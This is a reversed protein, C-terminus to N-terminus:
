GYRLWIIIYKSLNQSAVYVSKQSSFAHM